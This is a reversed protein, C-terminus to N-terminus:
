KIVQLIEALSGRLTHKAVSELEPSRPRFAVSDGAAALLCADREEQGVALVRSPDIGTKECLNLMANLKCQDHLRCGDERFMAPSLTIEGTARGQRFRMLHAVSFDAFVRRRVTEAAIQYSDTVIGVRYGAKRLGIVAEVAGEMLPMERAVEVFTEQYEGSFLAALSQSRTEESLAPNDRYLGVEERRDTAAALRTIYRDALLVGDMDLLALRDARGLRSLSLTLEAEARREVEEVERVQSIKLRDYRWARDLIVGVVAKAMDGLVELPYSEHNIRGIDVEEIRAERARADLVLGLDVGYDPEYSLNQLLQRRAAIIGGLPQQLAAVEPFFLSLLPRATLTTVRGARRSYGAKVFDARDTVLPEVLRAILDPRLEAMNGDLYVILDGRAARLGDEMSAGKGMSTSTIVTAGAARALEPTEDISGDDVVIVEEVGPSALAFEVLRGITSSENLVPIVVSIL